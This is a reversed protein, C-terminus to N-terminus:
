LSGHPVEHMEISANRCTLLAVTLCVCAQGTTFCHTEERKVPCNSGQRAQHCIFQNRHLGSHFLPEEATFLTCALPHCYYKWLLVKVSPLMNIFAQISLGQLNCLPGRFLTFLGKICQIQKRKYHSLLVSCYKITYYQLRTVRLPQNVKSYFIKFLRM